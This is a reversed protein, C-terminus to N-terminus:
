NVKPKPAKESTAKGVVKGVIGKCSNGAKDTINKSKGKVNDKSLNGVTKNVINKDM